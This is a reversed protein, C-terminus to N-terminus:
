TSQSVHDFGCCVHVLFHFLIMESGIGDSRDDNVGRFKLKGMALTGRGKNRRLQGHRGFEAAMEYRLFVTYL